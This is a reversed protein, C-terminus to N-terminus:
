GRAAIEHLIVVVVATLVVVYLKAGLALFTAVVHLAPDDSGQAVGVM